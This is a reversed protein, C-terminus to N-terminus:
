LPKTGLKPRRPDQFTTMNRVKSCVLFNTAPNYCHGQPPPPPPSATSLMYASRGSFSRKSMCRAKNAGSHTSATDWIAAYSSSSLRSTLDDPYRTAKGQASCKSNHWHACDHHRTSPGLSQQCRVHGNAHDMAVTSMQVTYGSSACLHVCAHATVAAMETCTAAVSMGSGPSRAKSLCHMPQQM